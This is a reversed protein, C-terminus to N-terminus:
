HGSDRGKQEALFMETRIIAEDEEEYKTDVACNYNIASSKRAPIKRAYVIQKNSNSENTSCQACVNAKEGGLDLIFLNKFMVPRSARNAGHKLNLTKPVILSQTVKNVEGVEWNLQCGGRYRTRRKYTRLIPVHVWDIEMTNDIVALHLM